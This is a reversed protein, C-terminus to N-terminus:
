CRRLANPVNSWVQMPRKKMTGVVPSHPAPYMMPQSPYFFQSPPRVSGPYEYFQQNHMDAVAHPHPAMGPYVNPAPTASSLAPSSAYMNDGPRYGEYTFPYEVRTPGAYYPAAYDAQPYGPYPGRPQQMPHPGRMHITPSAHPQGAAMTTQSALSQQRYPQASGFEDEVAMGRFSLALDHDISSSQSTEYASPSANNSPMLPQQTAFPSTNTAYHTRTPSHASYRSPTSQVSHEYRQPSYQNVKSLALSPTSM